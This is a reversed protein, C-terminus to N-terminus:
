RKPRLSRLMGPILPPQVRHENVALLVAGIERQNHQLARMHRGLDLLVDDRGSAIVEPLDGGAEKHKAVARRPMDDLLDKEEKKDYPPDCRLATAKLGSDIEVENLGLTARFRFAVKSLIINRYSSISDPLELREKSEDVVIPKVVIPKEVAIPTEFFSRAQRRGEAFDLFEDLSLPSSDPRIAYRGNEVGGFCPMNIWSGCDETSTLQNQKPFVEIKDEARGPLKAENLYKRIMEVLGLADRIEALRQRM